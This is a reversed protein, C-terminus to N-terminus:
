GPSRLRVPVRAYLTESFAADGIGVHMSVLSAAANPDLRAAHRLLFELDHESRAPQFLTRRM